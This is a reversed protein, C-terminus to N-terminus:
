VEIRMSVLALMLADRKAENTIFHQYGVIWPACHEALARHAQIKDANSDGCIVKKARQASIMPVPIPPPLIHAALIRLAAAALLSSTPRGVRTAVPPAEHVVLSDPHQSWVDNMQGFLEVTRRLDQEHGRANTKTVPVLTGADLLRAREPSVDLVVWGTAKLSQDFALVRSFILNEFRLPEWAATKGKKALLDVLDSLRDFNPKIM